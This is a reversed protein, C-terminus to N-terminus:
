GPGGAWGGDVDGGRDAPVVGAGGGVEVVSGTLAEVAFGLRGLAEMMGRSAVAAGNSDDLYCNSAVFLIRRIAHTMSATGSRPIADDNTM